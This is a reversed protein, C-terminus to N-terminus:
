LNQDTAGKKETHSDTHSFREFNEDLIDVARRESDGISHLYIETTARNEHGLIRQISGIPVNAQDLMSAGIHRLAHYRFYKVGANTCLTAMISNRDEYPGVIEKKKKRSWYRHWFVWPVAKDRNRHRRSLVEFLKASMPVKRPTRHGGKKKRTYLVVCRQEFNVEQWTLRNIESMRGMTLAITWLYDQTDPDAALIVRLVDEKPPVYKIQKDVPFFQIGRTPNSDIWNRTPHMGFNFVARLYRLEKNATFSSVTRQRKLLYAQIMDPRIDRCAMQGWHKAWRKALYLHDTYHRESNYARVYDLRMNLLGLFVMDTPTAEETVAPKPNKLEERRQAEAQKAEQRKPFWTGSYRTGNLTFDYRYGKGKVLYVSM